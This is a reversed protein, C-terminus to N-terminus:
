LTLNNDNMNNNNNNNYAAITVDVDYVEYGGGPNGCRGEIPRTRVGSLANDTLVV